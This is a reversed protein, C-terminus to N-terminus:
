YLQWNFGAVKSFADSRWSDKERKKFQLFPVLNRSASNIKVKAGVLWQANFWSRISESGRWTTSIELQAAAKQLMDENYSGAIAQFLPLIELPEGTFTHQNM